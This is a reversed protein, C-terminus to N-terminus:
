LRATYLGSAVNPDDADTVMCIMLDAGSVQVDIGEVKITAALPRQWVRRGAADVRGVVSGACAGDDVSNDTAEAAASYLWGGDPLAAGDTFGLAVGARAGLDHHQIHIPKLDADAGDILGQVDTRRYRLAANGSGNVGRNLLLVHDGILAAGEINVAGLEARLPGFLPGLDIPAAAGAPRGDARLAIWWGRERNPRSGSGLALLGSTNGNTNGSSKGSSKGHSKGGSKGGAPASWRLLCELDPKRKKRAKMGDPLDGPVIRHLEGPAVVSNFIGLHLEDDAVVYVRGGSCVLGSAASLHAQGRPHAGADLGLRRLLHPHIPEAPKVSCM